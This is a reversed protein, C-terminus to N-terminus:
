SGKKAAATDSAEGESQFNALDTAQEAIWNRLAPAALIKRRNEITNALKKGHETVGQFDILLAQAAAEIAIATQVSADKRVKHPPYKRTAKTVAKQYAASETSAILFKADDGYEIWVGNVKETSVSVETLEMPTDTKTRNQEKTKRTSAAVHSLPPLFEAREPKEEM